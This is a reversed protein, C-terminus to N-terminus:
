LSARRGLTFDFESRRNQSYDGESQGRSAPREEGFSITDVQSPEVGLTTLYTKASYARKQGLAINYESTGLECTHGAITVKQDPNKRLHDALRQLTDASEPLLQASDLAYYIPGFGTEFAEAREPAPAPAPAEPQAVQVPRATEKVTESVHDKTKSACGVGTVLALTAVAAFLTRRPSTLTPTTMRPRTLLAHAM